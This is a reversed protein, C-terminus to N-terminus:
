HQADLTCISQQRDTRADNAADVQEFLHQASVDIAPHHLFCIDAFFRDPARVVHDGVNRTM